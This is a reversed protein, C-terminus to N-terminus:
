CFDGPQSHFPANVSPWGPVCTLQVRSPEPTHSLAAWCWWCWTYMMQQRSHQLKLRSTYRASSANASMIIHFKRNLDPGSLLHLYVLRCGARASSLMTGAQATTYFAGHVSKGNRTILFQKEPPLYPKIKSDEGKEWQWTPCHHVLHDGAAVFQVCVNATMPWLLSYVFMWLWRCCCVTCM